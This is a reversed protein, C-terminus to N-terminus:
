KRLQWAEQMKAERQPRSDILVTGDDIPGELM